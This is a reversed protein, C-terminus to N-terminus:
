HTRFCRYRCKEETFVKDNGTILKDSFAGEEELTM